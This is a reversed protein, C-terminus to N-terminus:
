SNVLENINQIVERFPEENVKNYHKKRQAQLRKYIKRVAKNVRIRQWKSLSTIPKNNYTLQYDSLSQFPWASLKIKFIHNHKGHVIYTGVWIIEHYNSEVLRFDIKDSHNIILKVVAENFKQETTKKMQIM